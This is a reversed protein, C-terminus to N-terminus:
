LSCGKHHAATEIAVRINRLEAPNEQADAATDWSFIGFGLTALTAAGILNTGIAVEGRTKIVDAVEKEAAVYDPYEERLESCSASNIVEQDEPDLGSSAVPGQSTCSAPGYLTIVAALPLCLLKSTINRM